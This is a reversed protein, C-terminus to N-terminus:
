LVWPPALLFWADICMRGVKRGSGISVDLAIEVCAYKRAHMSHNSGYRSGCGAQIVEDGSPDRPHCVKGRVCHPHAFALFSYVDTFVTLELLENDFLTLTRGEVAMAQLAAEAGTDSRLLPPRPVQANQLLIAKKRGPTVSSVAAEHPVTAAAVATAKAFGLVAIMVLLVVHIAVLKKSIRNQKGKTTVDAKEPARATPPTLNLTRLCRRGPCFSTVANGHGAQGISQPVSADPLFRKSGGGKFRLSKNCYFPTYSAVKVLKPTTSDGLYEKCQKLQEILSICM